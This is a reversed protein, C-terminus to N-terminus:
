DFASLPTVSKRRHCKNIFEKNQIPFPIPAQGYKYIRIILVLEKEFADM